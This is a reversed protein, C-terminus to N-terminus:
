KGIELRSAGARFWAEWRPALSSWELHGPSMVRKGIMAEAAKVFDEPRYVPRKCSYVGEYRFIVPEVLCEPWPSLHEPAGGYNGHICPTGCFVSEFIPYGFGEPGIGITLDCASYASAMDGDSIYGSSLFINEASISHDIVLAFIDWYRCLKDTHIWLRVPHKRSLMAVTEIGLAWDKRSQNTAVIGILVDDEAIPKRGKAFTRTIKQFDARCRPRNLSNSFVSGDIGHPLASLDKWTSAEKGITDRIVAEGWESYALIRDFGLLTKMLSFSLRDNPGAGDLPCYIWKEFPPKLLWECLKRYKPNNLKESSAPDALWDLRSPDWACLVIGDRNRAFNEWVHQLQPLVFDDVAEEVFQPFGLTSDGPGGIGFTAVRFLDLPQGTSDTEGGKIKQALTALARAIRALGTPASVADGIILLPIEAAMGILILASNFSPLSFTLQRGATGIREAACRDNGGM